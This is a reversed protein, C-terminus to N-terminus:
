ARPKKVAHDNESKQIVCRLNECHTQIFRSVQEFKSDVVEKTYVGCSAWGQQEADLMAQRIEHFSKHFVQKLLSAVFETPTVDDDFIIIEYMSPKVEEGDSWIFKGAGFDKYNDFLDHNEHRSM